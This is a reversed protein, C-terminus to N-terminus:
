AFTCFSAGFCAAAYLTKGQHFLLSAYTNAGYWHSCSGRQGLFCGTQLGSRLAYLSDQLSRIGIGGGPSICIKALLYALYYLFGIINFGVYPVILSKVNSTSVERWTREPKFLYGSVWFFLPMHVVFIFSTVDGSAYVSHGMVVLLIGIAKAWDIWNERQM